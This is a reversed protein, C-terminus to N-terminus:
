GSVATLRWKSASTRWDGIAREVVLVIISFTLMWAVIQTVEYNHYWYDLMFGAGNSVGFHEAIVVIRWSASFGYRLAGALFPVLYPLYLDLYRQRPTARYIAAVDMLDQDIAKTGEWINVVVSPAVTLAVAIVMSRDNVGFWMVALIAWVLTPMSLGIAVWPSFIREALRSRALLVSAPIGIAFAVVLGGVMRGLTIALHVLGPTGFQDASTLNLAMFSFVRWPSPALRPHDVLVSVLWWLALLFAFGTLRALTARDVRLCARSRSPASVPASKVTM